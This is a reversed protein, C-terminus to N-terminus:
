VNENKELLDPNEYINGIVKWWYPRQRLDSPFDWNVGDKDKKIEFPIPKTDPDYGDMSTWADFVNSDHMEVCVVIDGEYIEQNNKDKLNTYEGRFELCSDEEALESMMIDDLDLYRYFKEKKDWVRFKIERM